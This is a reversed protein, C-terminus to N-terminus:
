FQYGVTLAFAHSTFEYKGDATEGIPSPASGQINTEPGYAFQYTFALKWRDSAYKGGLSWAHFDMDSVAPTYTADPTSTESYFYGASVSFGHDFSRTVGFEYIYSSSWDLPQLVDGSLRRIAVADLTDWDTWDLNFELNWKPTPRFSYGAVIQQPLDLKADADENASPFFLPTQSKIETRGELDVNVPSRYTLGFSHMRHPQWRAGVNFGVGTGDGDFKFEDGPVLIGRRLDAQAYTIMVGAGVSLSDCIRWAAVPNATLTLLKNKTAYSRFPSEDSWETSLGYPSYLGLGFSLPLRKLSTTAYFHPAGQFRDPTDFTRGDQTTHETNIAIAYAGLEVQTGPVQTIGAPNYYIASPNDATATFANGRAISDADQHLLRFGLAHAGTPSAVLAAFSLLLLPRLSPIKMIPPPKLVDRAAHCNFHRGPPKREGPTASKLLAPDHKVGRKM